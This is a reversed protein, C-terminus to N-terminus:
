SQIAKAKQPKVHTHIHTHIHTDLLHDKLMWQAQGKVFFTLLVKSIKHWLFDLLLYSSKWGFHQANVTEGVEMFYAKDSNLTTETCTAAM